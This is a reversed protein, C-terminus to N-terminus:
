REAPSRTRTGLLLGVFVPTGLLAVVLGAPIERPAMAWRGVADAMVLLTAGVVASLLISRRHVPGSLLRAVQPAILGIFGIAGVVSVAAAALLTAVGILLLRNPQPRVGLSAAVDDDIALLDARRGMVWATPVLVILFPALVAVDSWGRGYTSGSMWSLAQALRLQHSVVLLSVVATAFATVAVGVLVLRNPDGARAVVLVIAIALVAGAFAAWPMLEIPASPVALALTLAGATGGAVIGLTSPAALPNRTVGQLLCGAVALAAGAGAAVVSRPLRGDIVLERLGEPGGGALIAAVDGISVPTSGLSLCFLWVVVALGTALAMAAPFPLHGVNLQGADRPPAGGPIRWALFVLFPAGVLATIVGVPLEGLGAAKGLERTVGDAGLVLAAGLLAAAPILALHRRAGLTRAAHPALLGVFGIPGTVTVAAATLLVGAITALLRTRGANAGMTTSRQDGLALLDLRRGLAIAGISGALAFPLASWLRNSTSPALSGQGWFFLGATAQEDILQLTAAISGFLLAVATGALILRAPGAGASSAVLFTLAAAILAGTLAVFGRPMGGVDWGVIAVVALAVQAGAGIGLLGPEALPNRTAGQLLVGAVGLAAGAFLGAQWRPLRSGEIVAAVAPSSDGLLWGVIDGLDVPAPGRGLMFASAFVVAIIGVVFAFWPGMRRSFRAGHRTPERGAAREEVDAPAAISRSSREGIEVDATM